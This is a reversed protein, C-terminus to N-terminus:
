SADPAKLTSRPRADGAPRPAPTRPAPPARASSSTPAPSPATPRPAAPRATSGTRRRRGGRRRLDARVPARAGHGGRRGPVDLTVTGGAGTTVAGATAGARRSGAPARTWTGQDFAPPAAAFSRARPRLADPGGLEYLLALGASESDEHAPEWLGYDVQVVAQLRGASETLWASTVDTNTHHGDGKADTIQPAGGCPAPPAAWARAPRVVAVAAIAALSSKSSSLARM